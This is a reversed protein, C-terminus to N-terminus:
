QKKPAGQGNAAGGPSFPGPNGVEGPAKSGSGANVGRYIFVAAIIVLVVIVVAAMAPNVEKKV